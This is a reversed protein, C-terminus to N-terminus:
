PADGFFFDRLAPPELGALRELGAVAAPQNRKIYVAHDPRLASRWETIAITMALRARVLPGLCATEVATLAVRRCFGALAARVLVSGEAKGVHYSLAIALDNIRPAVVLDGFDIIGIAPEGADGGVLVNYPNVDNHVVQWPLSAMVPAVERAFADFAAAALARKAEDGVHALLPRTRLARSLDWVLDTEPVSPRYGALAADLRGLAGGLAGMVDATAAIESLQRGDLWSMLRVFRRAEGPIAVAPCIQGDRAPELRPVLVDPASAALHLLAGNQFALVDAREGPSAIKLVLRRGDTATVAFTEDAESTLRNAVGAIGFLEALLTAAEEATTPRYREALTNAVSEQARV